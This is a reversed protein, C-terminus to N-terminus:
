IVIKKQMVKWIQLSSLYFWIILPLCALAISFLLLHYCLINLLFFRILTNIGVVLIIENMRNLGKIISLYWFCDVEFRIHVRQLDLRWHLLFLHHYLNMGAHLSYIFINKNFFIYALHTINTSTNKNCTPWSIKNSQTNTPLTYFTRIFNWLLIM